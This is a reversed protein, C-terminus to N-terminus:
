PAEGVGRWPAECAGIGLIASDQVSAEDRLEASSQQEQAGAASGGGGSTKVAPAWRVLLHEWGDHTMTQWEPTFDTVVEQQAGLQLQTRAGLTQLAAELGGEGQFHLTKASLVVWWADVEFLAREQALLSIHMEPHLSATQTIFLKSAREASLHAILRTQPHLAVDGEITLPQGPTTAEVHGFLQFPVPTHSPLVRLTGNGRLVADGNLRFKTGVLIEGMVHLFGSRVAIMHATLLGVEHITLSAPTTETGAVTVEYAQVNSLLSVTTNIMASVIKHHPATPLDKWIRRDSWEGSKLSTILHPLHEKVFDAILTFPTWYTYLGYSPHQDLDAKMWAFITNSDNRVNEDNQLRPPLSEWAKQYASSHALVSIDTGMDSYIGILFIHGTADEYFLPSGIDGRSLAGYPLKPKETLPKFLTVMHSPTAETITTDFARKKYDEVFQTPESANSAFGFGVSFVAQNLFDEPGNPAAHISDLFLPRSLYAVAVNNARYVIHDPVAGRFDPHIEFHDVAIAGRSDRPAQPGVAFYAHPLKQLRAACEGSTLAVIGHMLTGTCQLRRGEETWGYLAGVNNFAEKQALAEFEISEFGGDMVIAQAAESLAIACFLALSKKKMFTM